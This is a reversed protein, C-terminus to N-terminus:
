GAKKLNLENEDENVLEIEAMMRGIKQKFLQPYEAKEERIAKVILFHLLTSMKLGRHDAVMAFEEKIEPTIRIYIREEKTTGM